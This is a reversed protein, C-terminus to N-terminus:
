WPLIVDSDDLYPKSEEYKAMIMKWMDRACKAKYVELVISDALHSVLINRVRWDNRKMDFDLNSGDNALHYTLEEQRLYLQIRIIWARNERANQPNFDIIKINQPPENKLPEEM